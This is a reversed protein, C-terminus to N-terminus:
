TKKNQDEQFDKQDIKIKFQSINVKDNLNKSTNTEKMEKIVTDVKYKTKIFNKKEEKSNNSDKSFLSNESKSYSTKKPPEFM